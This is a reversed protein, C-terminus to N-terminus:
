GERVHGLARQEAPTKVTIDLFAVASRRLWETSSDMSEPYQVQGPVSSFSLRAALVSAKLLIPMAFAMVPKPTPTMMDSASTTHCRSGM